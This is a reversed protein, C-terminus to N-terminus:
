TTWLRYNIDRNYVTCGQPPPGKLTALDITHAGTPLTDTLQVAGNVVVACLQTRGADSVVLRAPPQREALSSELLARLNNRDGYCLRDARIAKERTGRTGTPADELADMEDDTLRFSGYGIGARTQAIHEPAAFGSPFIYVETPAVDQLMHQIRAWDDSGVLLNRDGIKGGLHYLGGRHATTSYMVIPSCSEFGGSVVGTARLDPVVVGQQTYCRIVDMPDNERQPFGLRIAARVV